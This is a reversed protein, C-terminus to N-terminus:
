VLPRIFIMEEASGGTLMRNVDLIFESVIDTAQYLSNNVIWVNGNQVARFEEFHADKGLLDALTTVSTDITGNYILYDADRAAAYFEEFSISITAKGAQNELSTFPYVGGADTIMHSIYDDRGRVVALGSTNINFFAVTPSGEPFETIRSVIDSQRGFFEEAEELHGTMVGYVKIWETRGLPEPEYSSRDIFVPIGLEEIMEQVSPSHLIMTSEIALDCDGNVLLEYDPRSYKGAYVIEGAEM